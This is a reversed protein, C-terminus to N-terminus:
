GCSRLACLDGGAEWGVTKLWVPAGEHLATLRLQEYTERIRLTQLEPVFSQLLRGDPAFTIDRLLSLADKPLGPAYMPEGSSNYNPGHGDWYGNSM